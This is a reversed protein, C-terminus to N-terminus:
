TPLAQATHGVVPYGSPAPPGAADVRQDDPSVTLQVNVLELPVDGEALVLGRDAGSCQGPDHCAEAVEDDAHEAQGSLGVDFATSSVM